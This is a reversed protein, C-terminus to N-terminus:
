NCTPGGMAEVWDNTRECPLIHGLSLGDETLEEDLSAPGFPSQWQGIARGSYKRAQDKIQDRRLKGELLDLMMQAIVDDRLMEDRVHRCAQRLERLLAPADKGVSCISSAVSHGTQRLRPDESIEDRLRQITSISRGLTNAVQRRAAGERLLKRARRREEPTVPSSPKCHAYHPNLGARRRWAIVATQHCGLHRAIMGDSWGQNYWVRAQDWDYKIKYNEM